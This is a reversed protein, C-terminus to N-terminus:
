RVKVLHLKNTVYGLLQVVEAPTKDEHYEAAPTIDHLLGLKVKIVQLEANCLTVM